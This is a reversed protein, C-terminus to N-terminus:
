ALGVMRRIYQPSAGEARYTAIARADDRKALRKGHEDRILRHHHYIPTPLGLLDQLIVHITTAAFLDMGRVVHTIEQAHDDIVVALHYAAGADRRAVVVDGIGNQIHSFPVAIEGTEQNPGAGTESFVVFREGGQPTNIRYESRNLHQLAEAMNLRLTTNRPRPLRGEFHAEDHWFTKRCIGPYVPGDPGPTEQPASLAERIDKRTCSCPYLLGLAWLHDLAADYDAMHDSERRCPEPWALGLWNLDDRIQDEWHSRSRTQDLDDIRLHFTGARELAMDHALLASYAHGLHLPGTPSPAFRTTFTM